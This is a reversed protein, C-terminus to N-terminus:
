RGLIGLFREYARDYIERSPDPLFERTEFSSAVVARAEALGSIEGLSILQMLINGAATAESPGALM